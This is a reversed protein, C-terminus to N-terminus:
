VNGQPASALEMSEDSIIEMNMSEDSVVVPSELSSGKTSRRLLSSTNQAGGRTPTVSIMPSSTMRASSKTISKFATAPTQFASHGPSQEAEFPKSSMYSRFRRRDSSLAFERWYANEQTLTQLRIEGMQAQSQRTAVEIQWRLTQTQMVGLRKEMEALKSDSAERRSTESQLSEVAHAHKTELAALKPLIDRELELREDLLQGLKERLNDVEGTLRRNESLAEGYEKVRSGMSEHMDEDLRSIRSMIEEHFGYSSQSLEALANSTSVLLPSPELSRPVPAPPLARLAITLQSQTSTLSQQTEKLASELEALAEDKDTLASAALTRETQMERQLHKLEKEDGLEDLRMENIKKAFADRELEASLARAVLRDIEESKREDAMMAGLLQKEKADITDRLENREYRTDKLRQKLIGVEAELSTVQSQSSALETSLTTERDKSEAGNHVNDARDKAADEAEHLAAIATHLDDTSSLRIAAVEDFKSLIAHQSTLIAAFMEEQRVKGKADEDQTSPYGNPSKPPAPVTQKLSTLLRTHDELTSIVKEILHSSRGAQQAAVDQVSHQIEEGIGGLSQGIHDSQTYQRGFEALFRLADNVDFAGTVPTDLDSEAGIARGPHEVSLLRGKSKGKPPAQIVFDASTNSSTPPPFAAPSNTLSPHSRESAAGFPDTATAPSIVQSFSPAQTLHPRHHEPSVVPKLLGKTSSTNSGPQEPQGKLPFMWQSFKRFDDVEESALAVVAPHQEQIASDLAEFDRPNLDHTLDQSPHEPSPKALGQYYHPPSNTYDASKSAATFRQYEECEEPALSVKGSPTILSQSLDEVEETGARGRVETTPHNKKRDLAQSTAPQLTENDHEEDSFEFHEGPGDSVKPIDPINDPFAVRSLSPRGSSDMFRQFEAAEESNLAVMPMNSGTSASPLPVEPINLSPTASRTSRAPEADEALAVLSPQLSRVSHQQVDGQDSSPSVHSLEEFTFEFSSKPLAQSSEGAVMTSKELSEAFEAGQVTGSGSGSVGEDSVACHANLMSATYTVDPTSISGIERELGEGDDTGADIATIFPETSSEEDSAYVSLMSISPSENHTHSTHHSLFPQSPHIVIDDLPVIPESSTSSIGPTDRPHYSNHSHRTPLSPRTTRGDESPSPIESMESKEPSGQGSRDASPMPSAERRFYIVNQDNPMLGGAQADHGSQKVVLKVSEAKYSDDMGPGSGMVIESPATTTIVLSSAHASIPSSFDDQEQDAKQGDNHPAPDEAPFPMIIQVGIKEADGVTVTENVLKDDKVTSVPVQEADGNESRKTSSGSIVEDIVPTPGNGAGDTEPETQVDSGTPIGVTEIHDPVVETTGEVVKEAPTGSVVDEAMARKQNELLPVFSPVDPKSVPKSPTSSISPTRSSSKFPSSQQSGSGISSAPIFVAAAARIKTATSLPATSPVRSPAFAPSSSTSSKAGPTFVPASARIKGEGPTAPTAVSDVPSDVRRPGSSSPVSAISMQRSSAPTFTVASSSQVYNLRTFMPANGTSPPFPAQILGGQSWLPTAASPMAFTFNADKAAFSQSPPVFESAVARLKTSSVTSTTSSRFAKSSREEADRTVAAGSVIGKSQSPTFSAATPRLSPRPAPASSTGFKISIPARDLSLGGDDIARQRKAPKGSEPHEESVKEAPRLPRINPVAADQPSITAREDGNHVAPMASIASTSDGSPPASSYPKNASRSIISQIVGNRANRLHPPLERWGSAASRDSNEVEREERARKEKLASSSAFARRKLEALSAPMPGVDVEASKEQVEDRRSTKETQLKQPEDSLISGKVPSPIVKKVEKQSTSAEMSGENMNTDKGVFPAVDVPESRRAPRKLKPRAEKGDEGTAQKLFGGLQKRVFSNMQMAGQSRKASSRSDASMPPSSPTSHNQVPSLPLPCQSPSIPPQHATSASAHHLYKTPSGEEKPGLADVAKKADSPVKEIVDGDKAEGDDKTEDTIADSGAPEAATMEALVREIERESRERALGDWVDPEPISLILKKGKWMTDVEFDVEPSPVRSLSEGPDEYQVDTPSIPLPTFEPSLRIQTVPWPYAEKRPTQKVPTHEEDNAEPNKVFLPSDPPNYEKHPMCVVVKNGKWKVEEEEEEVEGFGEDQNSPRPSPTVGGSAKVPSEMKDKSKDTMMEDFTKGGPGGLVAKPPGGIRGRFGKSAREPIPHALREPRPGDSGTHYSLSSATLVRRDGREPGDGNMSRVSSVMSHAPSTTGSLGGEYALPSRTLNRGGHSQALPSLNARSSSDLTWARDLPPPTLGPTFPTNIQSPAHPSKPSHISFSNSHHISPAFGHGLSSCDNQLGGVASVPPGHGMDGWDAPSGPNLQLTNTREHRGGGAFAMGDPTGTVSLSPSYGHGQQGRQFNPQPPPPHLPFRFNRDLAHPRPPAKSPLSTPTPLYSYDISNSPYM